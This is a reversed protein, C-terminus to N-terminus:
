PHFEKFYDPALKNLWAHAVGTWGIRLFDAKGDGDVDAFQVDKPPVEADGAIRGIDRFKGGAGKAGENIWARAGGRATILIRDARRDGNIDAYRIERPLELAGSIRQPATWDLYERGGKTQFGKNYWATTTGNPEILLYDDRGGGTVDAFRIKTSPDIDPRDGTPGKSFVSGVGDYKNMCMRAGAPNDAKWTHVSVRGTLDVVMCDPFGDGDIDAFRLQNGVAGASPKYSNKGEVFPVWKEGSPGGNWWFRFNQDKDVTVFEAKRDKNVDVMWFRNSSPFQRSQIVGRDDWGPGLKDPKTPEAGGTGSGDDKLGCPHSGADPAQPNPKQIWGKDKAQRVADVFADGIKEYGQDNPHIGDSGVEAPGLGTIDTYVAHIGDEVLDHVLGPVQKTFTDGRADTGADRFPQVGAVLVTVGPADASVQRVLDGLRGIAGDLHYDQIVDNGGAILTIVNPQYTKVSCQAKGAIESIRYGPWGEVDRDPMTGVRVSGVWDVDRVLGRFGADATDRYGNGDSSRQGYTTSSGLAMTRWLDVPEEPDPPTVGLYPNFTYALDPSAPKGPWNFYDFVLEAPNSALYGRGAKDDKDDWAWPPNASDTSCEGDAPGAVGGEGCAAGYPNSGDDGAFNDPTAFLSTLSRSDWMGGAAFVDTLAYQVDRDNPGDPEEATGGPYYLIGDGDAYEGRLESLADASWAAHTNAQQATWPRDHGDTHPSGKLPLEGDVDQAAGTWDGGKPVYSYFDSHSVTITAKLTGHPSGDRAVVVLAGEADNEHENLDEQWNGITGDSWDRPHFFTYLLYAFGKTEVVSYYVNAKLPFRGTNEWNNRANRDGDFDYGTLYDSKGDLSTEGTADVDQFHVPAWWQALEARERSPSAAASPPRAVLVTWTAALLALVISM